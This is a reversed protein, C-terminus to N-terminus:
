SIDLLKSHTSGEIVDVATIRSLSRASNNPRLYLGTTINLRIRTTM